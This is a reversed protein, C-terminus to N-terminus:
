PHCRWSPNWKDLRRISYKRVSEIESRALQELSVRAEPTGIDHIAWVCKRFLADGDDIADAQPPASSCRSVLAQLSIPSRFSQLIRAIEEHRNHTDLLLHECLAPIHEKAIGNIAFGLTLIFDLSSDDDLEVAQVLFQQILDTANFDGFGFQGVFDSLEIRKCALDLILSQQEVSFIRESMGRGIQISSSGMM